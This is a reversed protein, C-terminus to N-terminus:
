LNVKLKFANFGGQMFQNSLRVIKEESYGLWGAATTYAPLGQCLLSSSLDFSNTAVEALLMKTREERLARDKTLLALAEEKTM